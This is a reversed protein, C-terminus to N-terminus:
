LFVISTIAEEEVRQSGEAQQVNCRMMVLVPRGVAHSEMM